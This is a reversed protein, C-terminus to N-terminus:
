SNKLLGEKLKDKAKKLLKKSQKKKSVLGKGKIRDVRSGRKKRKKTGGLIDAIKM